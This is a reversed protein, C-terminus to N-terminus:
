PLTWTANFHVTAENVQFIGLLTTEYVRFAFAFDVEYTGSQSISYGQGAITCLVPALETRSYTDFRLGGYSPDVRVGDPTSQIDIKEAVLNLSQVFLSTNEHIKYIYFGVIGPNVLYDFAPLQMILLWQAGNSSFTRTGNNLSPVELAEQSTVVPLNYIQIYFHAFAELCIVGVLIAVSVVIALRKRSFPCMAM